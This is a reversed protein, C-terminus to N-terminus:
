ELGCMFWFCNAKATVTAPKSTNGSPDKATVTYTYLTGAKLSLSDTFSTNATTGLVAGNRTIQYSAVTGSNDVSPSWKLDMVYKFAGWDARLSRSLNTPSTPPQTDATPPTPTPTPTPTPKAEVKTSVVASTTSDGKNDIAKATISHSGVPVNNWTFSNQTGPIEVLKTKGNYIEVKTVSGDTDSSNITMAINAPDTYSSKIGSLSVTPPQNAPSQGSVPSTAPSQSSATSYESSVWKCSYTSKTGDICTNTPPEIVRLNDKTILGKLIERNIGSDPGLGLSKWKDANKPNVGGVLQMHPISNNTDVVIVGYDRMAKIIIKITEASRTKNKLASNSAIWNDIETDTINLAFRMGEPITKDLTYISRFPEAMTPPTKSGSWEFKSAPAVATGCVSGEASTGLQQKTCEPGYSTNPISIGIAHRIEGASIEDPTVLTAYYSLGAGRDSVPGTYTRYDIYKGRNDRSVSIKLGCVRNQWFIADAICGGSNYGWITYIRGQTEGPRDDLIFIENDGGMGTKWNPNWPITSEPHQSQHGAKPYVENDNWTIGDLNSVFSISSVKSQQTAESALYVERTFLGALGDPDSLSPAGPFGPNIDIMGNYADAQASGDNKHGWEIFRSVYDASRSHKPVNCIPQNWVANGFPVKYNYNTVKAGCNTSSTPTEAKGFNLVWAGIVAFIIVVVPLVIKQKHNIFERMKERKSVKKAKQLRNAKKTKSKNNVM